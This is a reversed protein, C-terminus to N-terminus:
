GAVEQEEFIRNIAKARYDFIAELQKRVVLSQVFNGMMGLPVAYCVRDYIKTGRALESFSHTHRWFSYPGALQEDVFRFPPQYEAILSKWPMRIGMVRVSYEFIAGQKMVIPTASIIRFGLWPPTITALNNPKEFFSFVEELPRALFQGKQLTHIKM